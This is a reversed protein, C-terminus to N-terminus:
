NKKRSFKLGSWIEDIACVKYDVLGAAIATRRVIGDSLDTSVGSAKKPWAIWLHSGDQMQQVFTDIKKLLKKESDVFWLTLDRQRRGGHVIQVGEPLPELKAIFREPADVLVVNFASKIGLKKPLPTSSYAGSGSRPVIPASVPNAIAKAVAAKIKPWTTFTADPFKERIAKVKQADGDVFILPTNRTAKTQRLAMAVARGHSPLRSLDIVFAAARVSNKLKASTPQVNLHSANFGAAALLALREPVEEAKWHVLQVHISKTM